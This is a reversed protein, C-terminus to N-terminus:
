SYKRAAFQLQENEKSKNVNTEDTMNKTIQSSWKSACELMCM